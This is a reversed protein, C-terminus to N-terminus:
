LARLGSGNGSQVQHEGTRIRVIKGYRLSISINVLRQILDKSKTAMIITVGRDNNLMKAYEVFLNYQVGDLHTTPEDLLLVEPHPALTRMFAVVKQQGRSLKRVPANALDSFQFEHLLNDVRAEIEGAEEGRLELGLAINEFVTGSFLYPEQSLYGLRRRLKVPNKEAKAEEGFVTITGERVPQLLALIRLLTSKGAGCDGILAYVPGDQFFLQDIDISFRKHVQHHIDTIELLNSM